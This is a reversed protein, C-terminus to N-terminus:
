KKTHFYVHVNTYYKGNVYMNFLALNEGNTGNVAKFLLTTSEGNDLKVTKSDLTKNNLIFVVQINANGYNQNKIYITFNLTSNATANHPWSLIGIDVEKYYSTNMEIGVWIGIIVLMISILVATFKDPGSLKFPKIDIAMSTFYGIVSIIGIAIFMNLPNLIALAALLLAIAGSIALSVGFSLLVLEEGNINRYLTKLLFFGPVFFLLVGIALFKAAPHPYFYLALAIIALIAVINKDNM